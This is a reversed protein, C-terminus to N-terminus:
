ARELIRYGDASLPAVYATTTIQQQIFANQMALAIKEADARQKSLAFVAPGSGSIGAGLAGARMAAQKVDNFGPILLAREPEIWEDHLSQQMLVYDQTHLAHIFGAVHGLQKIGLHLPIDRRYVNRADATRVEIHPHVVSAFLPPIPLNCIQLPEYSKILVIGGLLAPAVNDAHNAGCALAECEMAIPLLEASTLPKPLLENVAGLAAVASAASSGLGSGLPMNKELLLDVGFDANAQQLLKLAGFSATNKQLDIPLDDQGHITLKVGPEARRTATVTDGLAHFAFGLIDFGCAVNAVTAPAFVKVQNIM